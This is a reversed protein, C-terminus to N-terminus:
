CPGSCFKRRANPPHWARGIWPYSSASTSYTWGPSSPGNDGASRVRRIPGKRKEVWLELPIRELDTWFGNRKSLTMDYPALEAARGLNAHVEVRRCSHGNLAEEDTTQVDVAGRVIDILWLPNQPGVVSKASLGAVPTGVRGAWRRDGVILTAVEPVGPQGYVCRHAEFDIVGVDPSEPVQARAALKEVLRVMPRRLKPANAALGTWGLSIQFEIRAPGDDITRNLAALVEEVEAQKGSM